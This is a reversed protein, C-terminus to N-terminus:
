AGGAFAITGAGTVTVPMFVGTSTTLSANAGLLLSINEADLRTVASTLSLASTSYGYTGESFTVNKLTIDTLAASVLLGSSPKSSVSAATSIFTTNECRGGSGGTGFELGASTDNGNEEFYCGICAGNIGTFTVKSVNSSQLNEEFWINRLQVGAASCTFYRTNSANMTLKVTPVTNGLSDSTSGAGVILTGAAPTLTTTLTETHGSLCVIVCAAGATTIAKSITAFPSDPDLGTNTTDSGTTSYVFYTTYSTMLPAATVLQDGLTQGIGSPWSPM